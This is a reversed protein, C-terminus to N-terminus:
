DRRRLDDQWHRVGGLRFKAPITGGANENIELRCFFALHPASKTFDFVPGNATRGLGETVLLPNPASRFLEAARFVDRYRRLDLAFGENTERLALFGFPTRTIFEASSGGAFAPAISFDPLRYAKGNMEVTQVTNQPKLFPSIEQKPQALLPSIALVLLGLLLNGRLTTRLVLGRVSFVRVVIGRERM